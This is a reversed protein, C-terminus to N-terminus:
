RKLLSLVLEAELKSIKEQLKLVKPNISGDSSHIDPCFVGYRCNSRKCISKKYNEKHYYRENKTHCYQCNDGNLCLSPSEYRGKVFVNSCMDSNYKYKPLRRKEFLNHYHLCNKDKCTDKKKCGITKYMEIDFGKNSESQQQEKKIVEERFIEKLRRLDDLSHAFSCHRNKCTEKLSCLVTKYVLPHYNIEEETHAFRCQSVNHEKKNNCAVPYYNWIHGLYLIPKRRGEKTLDSSIKYSYMYQKHMQVELKSEECLNTNTSPMNEQFINIKAKKYCLNNLIIERLDTPVKSVESKAYDLDENSIEPFQKRIGQNSFWDLETAAEFPSMNHKIEEKPNTIDKSKNLSNSQAKKDVVSSKNSMSKEKHTNNEEKQVSAEKAHKSEDESLLSISEKYNVPKQDDLPYEFNVQLHNQIV